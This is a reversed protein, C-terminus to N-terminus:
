KISKAFLAGKHEPGKLKGEHKHVGDFPFNRGKCDHTFKIEKSHINFVKHHKGM